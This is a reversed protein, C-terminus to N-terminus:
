NGYFARTIQEKLRVAQGAKAALVLKKALRGLEKPSLRNGRTKALSLNSRVIRM